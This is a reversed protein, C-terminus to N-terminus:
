ALFPLKGTRLNLIRMVFGKKDLQEITWESSSNIPPRNHHSTVTELHGFSGGMNPNLRSKDGAGRGPPVM